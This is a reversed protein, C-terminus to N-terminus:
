SVPVPARSIIQVCRSCRAVSSRSDWRGDTLVAVSIDLALPGDPAGCLRDGQETTLHAIAIPEPM